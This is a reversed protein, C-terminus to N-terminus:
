LQCFWAVFMGALDVLVCDRVEAAVVDLREVPLLAVADLTELEVAVPVAFFIEIRSGNQTQSSTV